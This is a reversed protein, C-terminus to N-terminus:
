FRGPYSEIKLYFLLLMDIGCFPSSYFFDVVCRGDLFLNDVLIQYVFHQFLM